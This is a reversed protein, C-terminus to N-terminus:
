RQLRVTARELSNMDHYWAAVEIVMLPLALIWRCFLAASVLAAGLLLAALLAIDWAKIALHQWLGRQSMRRGHVSEWGIVIVGAVEMLGTWLALLAITIFTALGLPSLVFGALAENGQFGVSSFGILVNVLGLM